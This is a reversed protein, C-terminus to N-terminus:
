RRSIRCHISDPEKRGESAVDEDDLGEGVVLDLAEAEPVANRLFADPFSM